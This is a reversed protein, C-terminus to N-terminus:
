RSHSAVYDLAFQRTPSTDSLGLDTAEEMAAEAEINAGEESPRRLNVISRFGMDRIRTVAEPTIAGACAVTSEIKAFRFIGEVDERVVQSHASTMAGLASAIMLITLFQKM